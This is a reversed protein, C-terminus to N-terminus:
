RLKDFFMFVGNLVWEGSEFVILGFVNYIIFLFRVLIMDM